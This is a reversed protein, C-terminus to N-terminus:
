PALQLVRANIYSFPVKRKEKRKEEKESEREKENRKKKRKNEKKERSPFVVSTGPLNFSEPTSIVLHM